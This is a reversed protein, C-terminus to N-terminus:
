GGKELGVEVTLVCESVPGLVKCPRKFKMEVYRIRISRGVKYASDEGVRMWRSKQRGDDMEFEPFNNGQGSMYVRTIVGEFTRIPLIDTGVM